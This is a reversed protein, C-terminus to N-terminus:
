SPRQVLQPRDPSRSAPRTVLLETGPEIRSLPRQGHRLRASRHRTIPYSIEWQEANARTDNVELPRGAPTAALRLIRLLPVGPPLKLQRAEDPGPMRATIAETWQIPGHGAQEMRDYIGGPGTDPGALVPLEAALTAPIYSTALQTPQGTAPDGMIRDRIIVETGPDLGLLGAIDYPVPGRSVSPPQLPRWSQATQDFYYGLEDRYVQRSRTIRHRAPRPRVVTGRRRVPEILGEATLQAVARRITERGVGHIHMLETEKPIVSGPPYEGSAIGQRIAQAVDQWRAM